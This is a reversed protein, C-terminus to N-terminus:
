LQIDSLKNYQEPTQQGFAHSTSAGYNSFKEKSSLLIMSQECEEAIVDYQAEMDIHRQVAEEAQAAWDTRHLVIFLIFSHMAEGICLAWRCVM